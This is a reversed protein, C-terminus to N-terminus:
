PFLRSVTQWEMGQEKIKAILKELNEKVKEKDSNMLATFCKQLAAKIDEPKTAHIFEHAATQGIM